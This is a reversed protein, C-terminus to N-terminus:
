RARSRPPPVSEIIVRELSWTAPTLVRVSRRGSTTLLLLEELPSSAQPAGRVGDWELIAPNPLPEDTSLLFYTDVGYPPGAEFLGAPALAIEAPPPAAARLPFRNEVSGRRPFLLIGNGHSDIVFAYYYRQQAPAPTSATSLALAYRTEGTVESQVPAGDRQRRVALRYQARSEAPSELQHWAHIKRLQLVATQLSTATDTSAALWQTRM